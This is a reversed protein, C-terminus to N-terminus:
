STLRAPLTHFQQARRHQRTTRWRVRRRHNDPNRFGFANRAEHKALRNLGESRANSYGTLLGAEIADWWTEITRALRHVEPSPSAAAMDYFRWLRHSIASRDPVSTGPRPALDLLRRLNEKVAYAHLIEIGPDGQEILENWMRTFAEGTLREYGTLLKRRNAWEPGERPRATGARDAVVVADPLASSVAKLYSGSLDIAVHTIQQKWSDPQAELWSTVSTSTRGDVQALM